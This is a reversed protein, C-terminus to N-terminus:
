LFTIRVGMAMLAAAIIGEPIQRPIRGHLRSAYWLAPVSGCLLGLVAKWDVHGLGFHSIGAIGALITGMFVNTGVLTGSDLRYFLIMAPILAAGSGISTVTVSAGVGFGVLIIFARRLGDPVPLTRDMAEPRVAFPLLRVLMIISVVILAGGIARFLVIDMSAPQRVGLYRILFAGALAGPLGGISLDRVIEMQVMGRRYFNWSGYFKSSFSFALSTGVATAPSLGGALILLPTLLSGSGLGTLGILLGILLGISVM